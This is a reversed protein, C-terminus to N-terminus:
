VISSVAELLTNLNVAPSVGVKVQCNTVADAADFQVTTKALNFNAQGTTGPASGPATVVCTGTVTGTTALVENLTFYIAPMGEITTPLTAVNTVVPLTLIVTDVKQPHYTVDVATWADAGHFLIDGNPSVACHGAAPNAGADADITLPGATGTGTRAYARVINLAKADDPLYFSGATALVYPNGGAALPAAGWLATHLARLVNGFATSKLWDSVSTFQGRNIAQKLTSGSVTPNATLASVTSM